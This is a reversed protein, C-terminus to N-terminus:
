TLSFNESSSVLPRRNNKNSRKHQKSDEKLINILILLLTDPPQIRHRGKDIVLHGAKNITITITTKKKKNNKKDNNVCVDTLVQFSM